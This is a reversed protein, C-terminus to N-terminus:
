LLIENLDRVYRPWKNWDECMGRAITGEECETMILAKDSDSLLKTRSPLHRHFVDVTKRTDRKPNNRACLLVIINEVRWRVLLMHCKTMNSTVSTLRRFAFNFSNSANLLKQLKKMQKQKCACDIGSLVLIKMLTLKDQVELITRLNRLKNLQRFGSACVHNM